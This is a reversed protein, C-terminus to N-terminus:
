PVERLAQKRKQSIFTVIMGVEYSSDRSHFLSLNKLVHGPM